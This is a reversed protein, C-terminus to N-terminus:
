DRVFDATEGNLALPGIQEELEDAAAAFTAGHDQGAILAETGPTLDEPVTHEMVRDGDVDPAVGASEFFPYFSPKDTSGAGAAGDVHRLLVGHGCATHGPFDAYVHQKEMSHDDRKREGEARVAPGALCVGKCVGTRAECELTIGPM